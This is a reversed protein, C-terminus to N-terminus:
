CASSSRYGSTGGSCLTSMLINIRVVSGGFFTDFLGLASKEGDPDDIGDSMGESIGLASMPGDMSGLDDNGDSIGESTGLSRTAGDMGDPDDMGDSMGDSIGLPSLAGDVLGSAVAVLMGVTAATGTVKGGIGNAGIEVVGGNLVSKWGTVNGGIWIRAAVVRGGLSTVRGCGVEGAGMLEIGVGVFRGGIMIAGDPTPLTELVGVSALEGDSVSVMIGVSAVVYTLSVRVISCNKPRVSVSSPDSWFALM